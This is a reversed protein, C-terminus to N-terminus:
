TEYKDRRDPNCFFEQSEVRDRKISIADPAVVRATMLLHWVIIDYAKEATKCFNYHIDDDEYLSIRELNGDKYLCFTEHSGKGIGNLIIEKHHLKVSFHADTEDVFLLESMGSELEHQGILYHYEAKIVAWETDTFPREQYWYNTYGM